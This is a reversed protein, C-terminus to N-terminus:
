RLQPAPPCVEGCLSFYMSLSTTGILHFSSSSRRQRGVSREIIEKIGIKSRVHRNMTVLNGVNTSFSMYQSCVLLPNSEMGCTDYQRLLTDGHNQKQIKAGVSILAELPM